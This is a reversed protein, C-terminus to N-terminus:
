VVIFKLIDTGISFSIYILLALCSWFMIGVGLMDGPPEADTINLLYILIDGTCYITIFIVSMVTLGIIIEIM